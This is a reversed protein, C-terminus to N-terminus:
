HEMGIRLCSTNGEARDTRPLKDGPLLGDDMREDVADTFIVALVQESCAYYRVIVKNCAEFDNIEEM